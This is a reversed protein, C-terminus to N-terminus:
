LLMVFLIKTVIELDFQKGCEIAGDIDVIPCVNKDYEM